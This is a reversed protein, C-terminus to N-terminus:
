VAKSIGTLARCLRCDECCKGGVLIPDATQVPLDVEGLLWLGLSLSAAAQGVYTHPGPAERSVNLEGSGKQRPFSRNQAMDQQGPCPLAASPDM